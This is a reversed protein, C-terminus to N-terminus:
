GALAAAAVGPLKLWSPEMELEVLRRGLGELNRHGPFWPHIPWSKVPARVVCKEVQELLLTNHFFGRGSQIDQPTSSPHAGWPTTCLGFQAGAWTNVCVAGYRLERIAKEVAEAAAPDRQTEPHVILMACLTGWVRENVFRVAQELFEVAGAGPLSVEGLVPCWPEESFMPERADAPDLDPLLAIPLRDSGPEGFLRVGRRGETFRRWREEAGPYYAKRPPVRSLGRAVAEVLQGRRHWQRPTVLLRAAVCNFSANNGVMGAINLGQFALEDETYPGPVVIVPSINGLESGIPKDLLPTSRRKRADREPGPPGWVLADHARDSGTMQVEDVAPHRALYEGEEAGGYVVALFGREIAPQFARELLPGLYANVPNMKLVCAAGDVFMKYLCDMSPIANVNGAGLVLCLRGDHRQRYFRAQHEHVEDATVGPLFYAEGLHKYLLAADLKNTPYVRLALRGDALTRMASRELRPAGYRKVERLSEALLRLNRIVLLPGLLWEEGSLTSSPDIGKARCAAVVSEDAIARYGFRMRELLQIRDDISLRAFARSGEKLRSLVQDLQPFPTAPAPPSTM